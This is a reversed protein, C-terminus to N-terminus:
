TISRECSGKILPTVIQPIVFIIVSSGSGLGCNTARGSDEELVYFKFAEKSDFVKNRTNCSSGETTHKRCNSFHRRINQSSFIQSPNGEPQVGSAFDMFVPNPGECCSLHLHAGTVRVTLSWKQECGALLLSFLLPFFNRTPKGISPM